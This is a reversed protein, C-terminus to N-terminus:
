FGSENILYDSLSHSGFNLVNKPDYKRKIRLLEELSDAYYRQGWDELNFDPYNAYSRKSFYPAVERHWNVLGEKIQESKAKNFLTTQFEVIYDQDRHPYSNEFEPSKINGGLPECIMACSVQHKKAIRMIDKFSESGINSKGYHSTGKFGFEEGPKRMYNGSRIRVNERVPTLGPIKSWITDKFVVDHDRESEDLDNIVGHLRLLRPAGKRFMMILVVSIRSAAFPANEEWFSFLAPMDKPDFVLDFALERKVEIPKLHFKTVFGFNGGGGGLMAWYLDPNITPTAQTESGDALIVDMGLVRDAGLGWHRSKVSHGGGLLFGAIGVTPCSGNPIMLGFPALGNMAEQLMLGSGLSVVSKDSAVEIQKFKRSDLVIGPGNSTGEFSHGGSRMFIPVKNLGSWKLVSQYLGTRSSQLIGVPDVLEIDKNSIQKLAQFERDAKTYFENKFRTFPLSLGAFLESAKTKLPALFILGNTFNGIFQRRKM